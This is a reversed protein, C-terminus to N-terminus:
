TRKILTVQTTAYEVTQGGAIGLSSQINAEIMCCTGYELYAEVDLTTVLNETGLRTLNNSSVDIKFVKYTGAPVSIKQVGGFKYTFVGNFGILSNDSNVPVQWTDNVRAEEKPFFLQFYSYASSMNLPVGKASTIYGTSNMTFIFYAQFYGLAPASGSENITYNEGDFSIIDMRVTDSETINAGVEPMAITTANYTMEEGPTYKYTLPINAGLSPPTLVLALTLAVAAVAIIGLIAYVRKGPRM